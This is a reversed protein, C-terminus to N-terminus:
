ESGATKSISEIRVLAKDIEAIKLNFAEEKSEKSNELFDVKAQMKSIEFTKGNEMRNIDESVIKKWNALEKDKETIEQKKDAIEKTLHLKNDLIDLKMMTLRECISYRSQSEGM